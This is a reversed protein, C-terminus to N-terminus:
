AVEAIKAAATDAADGALEEALQRQVEEPIVALADGEGSIQYRAAAGDDSTPTADSTTLSDPDFAFGDPIVATLQQRLAEEVLRQAEDPQYTLLTVPATAEVSVTDADDGPQHSFNYTFDEDSISEPVIEVGAPVESAVESEIKERLAQEAATRLAQIDAADAVQINQDTGGALRADRNSYYVGSELQGSLEGTEINGVTGGEAATVAADGGGYRGLGPDGAPITVDQDVTYELGEISTLTTGAEVTVDETNPNSLRVRGRASDAPEQRTGTAPVSDEVSFELSMEEAPVTLAVNEPAEQDPPLIAYTLESEVSQSEPRLTVTASSLLFFGVAFVTLVALLLLGVLIAITRGGIRRMRAGFSPTVVIDNDATPDRVPSAAAVTAARDPRAPASTTDRGIWRRRKPLGAPAAEEGQDPSQGPLPPLASRSQGLREHAPVPAPAGPATRAPRALSTDRQREARPAAAAASSRDEGDVPISFIAALQRRLPDESAISLDIQRDRSVERLARYEVATLFLPSGPPIELRVPNGAENRVRALVDPLSEYLTVVLTSDRPRRPADTM